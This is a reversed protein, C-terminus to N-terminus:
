EACAGQREHHQHVRELPSMPQKHEREREAARQRTRVAKEGAGPGETDDLQDPHQDRETAVERERRSPWGDSPNPALTGVRGCVRALRCRKAKPPRNPRRPDARRRASRSSSTPSTTASTAPIPGASCRRSTSASRWGGAHAAHVGQLDRRRPPRAGEDAQSPDARDRVEGLRGQFPRDHGPVAQGRGPAEPKTCPPPIQFPLGPSPRAGLRVRVSLVIVAFASEALVPM